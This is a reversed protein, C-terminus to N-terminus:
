NMKINLYQQLNQLVFPINVMKLGNEFVKQWDRICIKKIKEYINELKQNKLEIEKKNILNNNLNIIDENNNNNLNINVNDKVNIKNDNLNNNLNNYNNNNNNNNNNNLNNENNIFVNESYNLSLLTQLLARILAFRFSIMGEIGIDNEHLLQIFNRFKQSPSEEEFLNEEKQNILQDIMKVIKDQYIQYQKENVIPTIAQDIAIIKISNIDIKPFNKDDNKNNNNISNKDQNLNENNINNNKINNNNINNIINNVNNNANNINNNTNNLFSFQFLLNSPNGLNDWLVPVRDWNNIILDASIIKAIEFLIKENLFINKWNTYGILNPHLQSIEFIDNFYEMAIIFPRNLEKKVRNLSGDFSNSKEKMMRQMSYFPIRDGIQLIKFSPSIIQLDKYLMNGFVEQLITSTGKIVITETEKKDNYENKNNNNNLNENLNNEINEEKNNNNNSNSNNNNNNNNNNNLNNENLFPFDVFFVSNSSSTRVRFACEWDINEREILTVRKKLLKKVNMPPPLPPLPPLPSPVITPVMTSNEAIKENKLQNNTSIENIKEIEM